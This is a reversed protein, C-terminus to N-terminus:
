KIVTWGLYDAYKLISTKVAIKLLKQAEKAGTYEEVFGYEKVMQLCEQVYAEFKTKVIKINTLEFCYGIQRAMKECLYRILGNVHAYDLNEIADTNALFLTLLHMNAEENQSLIRMAVYEEIDPNSKLEENFSVFFLLNDLDLSKLKVVKDLQILKFGHLLNDTQRDSLEMKNALIADFYANRFKNVCSCFDQKTQNTNKMNKHYCRWVLNDIDIKFSKAM